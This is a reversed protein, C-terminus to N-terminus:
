IKSAVKLAYSYGEKYIGTKFGKKALIYKTTNKVKSIDWGYSVLVDILYFDGRDVLIYVISEEQCSHVKAGSELLLCLLRSNGKNCAASLPYGSLMNVDSGEDIFKKALPINEYEISLLLAYNHSFKENVDNLIIDIITTRNHKIAFSLMFQWVDYRLVGERILYKFMEIQNELIVREVIYLRPIVHGPPLLATPADVIFDLECGDVLYRMKELDNSDMAVLFQDRIDINM